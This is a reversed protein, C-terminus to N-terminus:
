NGERRLKEELLENQTQESFYKGFLPDYNGIHIKSEPNFEESTHLGDMFKLLRQHM